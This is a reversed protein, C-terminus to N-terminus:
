RYLIMQTLSRLSLLAGYWVSIETRFLLTAIIRSTIRRLRDDGRGVFVLDIFVSTQFCTLEYKISTQSYGQMNQKKKLLPGFEILDGRACDFSAFKYASNLKRKQNKKKTQPSPFKAYM